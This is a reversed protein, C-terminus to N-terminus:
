LNIQTQQLLLTYSSPKTQFQQASADSVMSGTNLFFGFKKFLAGVLMSLTSCSSFAGLTLNQCCVAMQGTESYAITM